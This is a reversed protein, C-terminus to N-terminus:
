GIQLYFIYKAYIINNNIHSYNNGYENGYDSIAKTTCSTMTGNDHIIVCERVQKSHTGQRKTTDSSSHM